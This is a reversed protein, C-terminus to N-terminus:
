GGGGRGGGGENRGSTINYVNVEEHQVKNKAVDKLNSVCTASRLFLSSSRRFALFVVIKFRSRSTSSTPVGNPLLNTSM